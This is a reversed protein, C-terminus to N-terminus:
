NSTLSSVPADYDLQFGKGQFNVAGDVFDIREGPWDLILSAAAAAGRRQATGVLERLWDPEVRTDDNLFVLYDGSAVAAGINNGGAFGMNRANRIVRVGPFAREAAETPDDHSGNDVVVVEIRDAPYTQARISALCEDLHTAGLATLIVISVRPLSASGAASAATSSRTPRAVHVDRRGPARRQSDFLEDIRLDRVLTLATDMYASASARSVAQTAPVSLEQAASADGLQLPNGFLEFLEADTRRRRGQVLERQRSLRPLQRGFDELAILHAVLTRSSEVTDPPRSSLPLALTDIGSRTLGRMLCLAIAAPLVRQLTAAEYNKYLMALASRELLRIRRAEAWSSSASQSLADRYTMARPALVVTHGLINLRWGLDVDELFAILEGDFGGADLFASRRFLASSSCPYLVRSREARVPSGALAAPVPHGLFSLGRGAFEITEGKGDLITSAVAAAQHSNAAEV